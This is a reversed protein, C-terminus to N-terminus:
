KAAEEEPTLANQLTARLSSEHAQLAAWDAATPEKGDIVTTVINVVFPAVDQGAKILVPILASAAQIFALVTPSLM